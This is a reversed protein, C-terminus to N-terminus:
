RVSQGLRQLYWSGLALNDLELELNEDNNVARYRTYGHLSIQKSYKVKVRMCLDNPDLGSRSQEETNRTKSKIVLRVYVGHKTVDINSSLKQKVSAVLGLFPYLKRTKEVNQSWGRGTSM